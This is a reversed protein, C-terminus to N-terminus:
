DTLITILNEIRETCDAERTKSKRWDDSLPFYIKDHVSKGMDWVGNENKNYHGNFYRVPSDTFLKALERAKKDLNKYFDNLQRRDM